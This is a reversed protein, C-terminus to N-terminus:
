PIEKPEERLRGDEALPCILALNTGTFQFEGTKTTDAALYVRVLRDEPPAAPFLEEPHV